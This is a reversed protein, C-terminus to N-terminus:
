RARRLHLPDDPSVGLLATVDPYPDLGEPDTAVL